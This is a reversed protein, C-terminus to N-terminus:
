KRTESDIWALFDPNGDEIPLAIVCPCSYSHLQKVKEIAAGVLDGRTKAILAVEKGEQIAGDWWYYSDIAGLVNACAALRAEVLAKGIKRAEELSAATMYLLRHSM